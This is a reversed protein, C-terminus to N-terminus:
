QTSRQSVDVKGKSKVEIFVNKQSGSNFLEAFKSQEWRGCDNNLQKDKCVCMLISAMVKGFLAFVTHAILYAVLANFIIPAMYFYVKKNDRLLQVGIICTVNAITLKALFLIFKSANNLNKQGSSDFSIENRRRFFSETKAEMGIFEYAKYNWKTTNNEITSLKEKLGKLCKINFIHLVASFVFLLKRPVILLPTIIADKVVTGLHYRILWKIIQKYKVNEKGEFYWLGVAASLCFEQCTFLFGTTVFLGFIHVWVLSRISEEEIYEVKQYVRYRNDFPRSLQMDREPLRTFPLIEPKSATTMCLMVYTWIWLYGCLLISTIFPFILLSPLKKLCNTAEYFFLKTESIYMALLLCLVVTMITLKLSLDLLTFLVNNNINYEKLIMYFISDENTVPINESAYKLTTYVGGQAIIALSLIIWLAIRAQLFIIILLIIISFLLAGGSLIVTYEWTLYINAFFLLVTEFINNLYSYFPAVDDMYAMPICRQRINSSPFINRFPCPGVSSKYNLYPFFQVLRLMEFDYRCYKFKRFKWNSILALETEILERPCQDICIRLVTSVNKWGFFLVFPKSSTDMGSLSINKYPKNHNIGCINGFSDYGNIIALYNGNKIALIATAVMTCLFLIFIFLWLINTCSKKQQSPNQSTNENEKNNM